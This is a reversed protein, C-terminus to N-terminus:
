SLLCACRTLQLWQGSVRRKWAKWAKRIESIGLRTASSCGTVDTNLGSPPRGNTEQQLAFWITCMGSTSKLISEHKKHHTLCILFSRFHITIRRQSGTSAKSTSAFNFLVMKRRSSFSRPEVLPTHPVSSGQPLTKTLSSTSLLLNRRPWPTFLVSLRFPAKMWLSRSIM